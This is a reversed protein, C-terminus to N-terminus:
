ANKGDNNNEKRQFEWCHDVWDTGMEHGEFMVTDTPKKGGYENSGYNECEGVVYDAGDDGFAYSLHHVKAPHGCQCVVEEEYVEESTLLNNNSM